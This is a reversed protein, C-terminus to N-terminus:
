GGITTMPRNKAGAIGYMDGHGGLAAHKGLVAARILTSIEEDSLGGASSPWFISCILLVEIYAGHPVLVLMSFSKM